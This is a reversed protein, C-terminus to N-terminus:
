LVVASVCMGWNEKKLVFAALSEMGMQSLSYYAFVAVLFKCKPSTEGGVDVVWEAVAEAVITAEGVVVAEAEKMDLVQKIVGDEVGDAVEAITGTIVVMKKITGMDETMMDKTTEIGKITIGETTGTDKITDKTETDKLTTMGKTTRIDKSMTMDKTAETDKLTEMAVEVGAGGEEGEGFVDEAM